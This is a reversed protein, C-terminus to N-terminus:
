KTDFTFFNADLKQNFRHETVKFRWVFEYVGSNSDTMYNIKYTHPLTLGGADKFDGFDETLTLKVGAQRGLTGFIDQKPNIADRYETRIHQFTQTDFLLKITFESSGSGKPFYDLVYAKRGDITRTGAPKVKGKRAQLDLLTWTSSLSGTLLGDSLIKGHDAIFAGLPSRTGSTVYPLNMKDNFFGIKEVPYENSSFSAIFFLNNGESVVLSKGQAIKSPLKSEFESTGIVFRTKVADIKEKKGISEIHKAIIEEAKLEQAQVASVGSVLWTFIFLFSIYEKSFVKSM